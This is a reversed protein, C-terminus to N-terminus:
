NSTELVYLVTKKALKGEGNLISNVFDGSGPISILAIAANHRVWWQSDSAAEALATFSSDTAIKKMSQATAARVEWEKDKLMKAIEAEDDHNGIECLARISEIKLNMDSSKLFDLFCDRLGQIKYDSATKVLMSKSCDDSLAISSKFLEEKSGSFVSIIEVVTEYTINVSKLNYTLLQALQKTDGLRSIALMINYILNNDKSNILKIIYSDAEKLYLEGIYRCALSKESVRKSNLKHILYEEIKLPRYLDMLKKHNIIVFETGYSIVTEIFLEKKLSSKMVTTCLNQTVSSKSDDKSEFYEAVIVKLASKIKLLKKDRFNHFLLVAIISIVFILILGASILLTYLVTRTM